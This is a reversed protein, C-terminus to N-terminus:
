HNDDVGCAHFCKRISKKTRCNHNQSDCNFVWSHMINYITLDNIRRNKIARTFRWYTCLLSIVHSLLYLLM